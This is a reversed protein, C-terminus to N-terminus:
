LRGPGRGQISGFRGSGVRSRCVWLTAVALSSVAVLHFEGIDQNRRLLEYSTARLMDARGCTQVDSLERTVRKGIGIYRTDLVGHLVGHDIKLERLVCLEPHNSGPGVRVIRSMENWAADYQEEGQGDFGTIRNDRVNRFGTWRNWGIEESARSM